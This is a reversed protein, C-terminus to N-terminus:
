RSSLNQERYTKCGQQLEQSATEFENIKQKKYASTRNVTLLMCGCTTITNVELCSSSLPPKNYPVTRTGRMRKPKLCNANLKVRRSINTRQSKLVSLNLVQSSAVQPPSADSNKIKKAALAIWIDLNGSTYFYWKNLHILCIFVTNAAETDM